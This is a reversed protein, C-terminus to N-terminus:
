LPEADPYTQVSRVQEFRGGAEGGVDGIEVLIAVEVDDERTEQRRVVGAVTRHHPPRRGTVTCGVAIREVGRAGAGDAGPVEVIVAEGVGQERGEGGGTADEGHVRDDM